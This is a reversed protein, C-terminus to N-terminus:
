CCPKFAGFASKVGDPNETPEATPDSLIEQIKEVRGGHNKALVELAKRFGVLRFDHTVSEPNESRDIRDLYAAIDLLRSRNEVFYRQLATDATLPCTNQQSIM